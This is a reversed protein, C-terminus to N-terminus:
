RERAALRAARATSLRAVVRLTRRGCVMLVAVNMAPGCKVVLFQRQLATGKAAEARGLSGWTLNNARLRACLEYGVDVGAGNHHAPLDDPRQAGGLRDLKVGRSVHFPLQGGGRHPEVGAGHEVALGFRRLRSGRRSQM